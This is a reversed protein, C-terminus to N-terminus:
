LSTTILGTKCYLVRVDWYCTVDWSAPNGWWLTYSGNPQTNALDQEIYAPVIAGASTINIVGVATYGSPTTITISTSGVNNAGCNVWGTRFWKVCLISGLRETIYDALVKPTIVRANTSTGATAESSTMSFYGRGNAIWSSGDYTLRIVSNASYDTSVRIDGNIYVPKAGTNGGGSLTLNLTANGSGAYPLKYAITKGTYLSADTTVGTWSGTASTQTGVIYEIAGSAAIDASNTYKIIYNITLYPPMNNHFAGGGVSDHEHTANLKIVRRRATGSESSPYAVNDKTEFYLSDSTYGNDSPVLVQGVQGTISKSGHTHAPIQNTTLTVNAEGGTSALSYSGSKGLPFKGTLNPVNFTTSGDGTGYSTGIVNFLESYTTRSYAAGDCLLYGAPATAGGFAIITGVPASSPARNDASVWEVDNSTNSKKALVQGIYGNPPVVDYGNIKLRNTFNTEMNCVFGEQQSPGGFAIGHGGALFDMTFFAKSIYSTVTTSNSGSPGLSDTAVVKVDYQDETGVSPIYKTLTGSAANVTTTDLTTWSSATVNKYYVTITSVKNNAYATGSSTTYASYNIVVKGRTGDDAAVNSSNVRYVADITVTPQRYDLKWVAYLIIAKNDTYTGGSPYTVTTTDSSLGWGQFIYTNRTPTTSSLTLDVGYTKTQNSPAGSGGNADFSVTYTNITWQAYLTVDAETSYTAGSNYNTGSGNAATNWKSFTYGTRSPVSSTLTLNTGYTKSQSAPANTGGNANYAVTFTTQKWIAYLTVNEDLGYQDGPSYSTGSGDSATNWKVFEYGTRTPVTSSLTLISGYWKTQNSPAGSGSNANYTVTHSALASVTFDQRSSWKDGDAYGGDAVVGGWCYVTQASHTKWVTYFYRGLWVRGGYQSVGTTDVNERDMVWYIQEGQGAIQLDTRGRMYMSYNWGNNVFYTNVNFVTRDAYDTIYVDAEVYWDYRGM